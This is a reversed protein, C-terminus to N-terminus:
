NPRTPHEKKAGSAVHSLGLTEEPSKAKFLSESSMSYKLSDFFDEVPVIKLTKLVSKPVDQLNKENEKPILVTKIGGRQAALLKEKLGGISLVKGRLTIEGTMAVDNRVPNQTFLSVLATSIAIGASPGDKPVAGEPLHIHIDTKEFLEKPIDFKEANSRVFSYATSISESMVDGLKGTKHIKGKGPSSVTEILLLEGGVRTWALGTVTGITPKDTSMGFSYKHVGAYRKLNKQNVKVTEVSGSTLIKKLSKRALSSIERELNRVGAERTYYRILDRVADKTLAWEKAKLGNLDRQKKIIHRFAIELKEEETYGSLQIIEMRDLLPRPMDLTNATAIFMVNSLDYGVELYHDNFSSNQEPDLVELLASSPDGRWDAGLKDVEDLLILPNSTGCKKMSQIIRGPLAGIYTRRHGRIEAEDKVGGLSIREYKRGTVAAISKALSTKGVGPPGVFCLIQGSVKKKRKQVALYELIRDKVKELGYHDQDMQKKAARLDTKIKSFTQWPIDLLWDIYARTISYESSAQSMQKLKKLESKAKASAEESLPEKEIREELLEIEDPEEGSEQLEKRIAKMQESLYYQRHSKEMQLRIRERIKEEAENLQGSLQINLIVQELLTSIGPEELLLQREDVSLPLHPIISDALTLPDNLKILSQLVDVPIKKAAAVWDKLESKLASMLPTFDARESKFNFTEFHAKYGGSTDDVDLINVREIGEILLKLTGDPLTVIQTIKARTGVDFVDEKKPLETGADRQSVSIIDSNTSIAMDVSSISKPRGVFLTVVMGPFVVVDRLPLLPLQLSSSSSIQTM